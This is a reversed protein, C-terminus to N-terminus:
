EQQMFSNEINRLEALAKEAQQRVGSVDSLLKAAGRSLEKTADQVKIKSM